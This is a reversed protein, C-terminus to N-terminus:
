RLSSQKTKTQVKTDHTVQTVKTPGTIKITWPADPDNKFARKLKSMTLPSFLGEAAMILTKKDEGESLLLTCITEEDKKILDSKEEDM